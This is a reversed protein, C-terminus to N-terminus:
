RPSLPGKALATPPVVVSAHEWRVQAGGGLEALRRRWPAVIEALAERNPPSRGLGIAFTPLEAGPLPHPWAHVGTVGADELLTLLARLRGRVRGVLEPRGVEVLAWAAHRRHLPPPALLLDLGAGEACLGWARLLEAELLVRLDRTLGDSCPRLPASPTCIQVPLGAQGTWASGLSVPLDWDREAQREFFALVLADGHAEPAGEGLAVLTEAVLLHWALGPLGGMPRADLGRARAWARVVLALGQFAALGGPLGSVAGQVAEADSVASLARCAAEDLVERRAVAEGVPLEGTTVLVLDVSLAWLRLRVGPVRAAEVVVAEEAESLAVQVSVLFAGPHM